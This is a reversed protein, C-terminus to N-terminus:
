RGPGGAEQILRLVREPTIPLENASIAGFPSLADSVANAIVAGPAIAGGEGMGKVGDITFPSPTELHHIEMPPMEASAPMLYDLFSVNLLQGQADYVSEEFLASGLGQAIGGHIQGEVIIPNIVRGCDEVIV